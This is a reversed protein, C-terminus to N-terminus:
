LNWTIIRSSFTRTNFLAWGSFLNKANLATKLTSKLSTLRNWFIVPLNGASWKWSGWDIGLIKLASFGTTSEFKAKKVINWCNVVPTLSTLRKGVHNRLRYNRQVEQLKVCVYQKWSYIDYARFSADYQKRVIHKQQTEKNRLYIYLGKVYMTRSLLQTM